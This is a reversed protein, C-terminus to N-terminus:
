DASEHRSIRERTHPLGIFFVDNDNGRVSEGREGGARRREGRLSGREMGSLSAGAIMNGLYHVKLLGVWRRVGGGDIFLKFCVRSDAGLSVYERLNEVGISGNGTVNRSREWFREQLAGGLVGDVRSRLIDYDFRNLPFRLPSDSAAKQEAITSSGPLEDSYYFRWNLLFISTSFRLRRFFLVRM